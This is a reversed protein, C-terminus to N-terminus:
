RRRPEVADVIALMPQFQKWIGELLNESLNDIEFKAFADLINVVDKVEGQILDTVKDSILVSLIDRSFSVSNTSDEDSQIVRLRDKIRQALDTSKSDLKETRLADEARSREYEDMQRFAERYREELDHLIEIKGGKRAEVFAKPEANNNGSSGHSLRAHAVSSVDIGRMDLRRELDFVRSAISQVTPSSHAAIQPEITARAKVMWKELSKVFKQRNEISSDLRKCDMRYIEQGESLERCITDLSSHLFQITNRDLQIRGQTNVDRLQKAIRVGECLRLHIGSDDDESSTTTPAPPLVTSPNSSLQPTKAIPAIVTRNEELAKTIEPDVDESREEHIYEQLTTQTQKLHRLSNQLRTIEAAPKM